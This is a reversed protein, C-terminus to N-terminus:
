FNVNLGLSFSRVVPSAGVQVGYTTPGLYGSNTIEVGEPNLSTYDDAMLYLLNTAAVYVRLSNLGIKDIKDPSVTYGITMNRLATYSADQIQADLQNRSQTYFKGNADAKGDGDADFSSRLRGGFESRWYIQDINFVEAGQAGQFQLGLDFDKFNVSTSLGWYFDPTNQGIKIYDDENIEGDGNQDVVYYESSSYGINRTPDVMHITEVMGDTELGWMEGIEGGVYNRFQPGRGSQGYVTRPL